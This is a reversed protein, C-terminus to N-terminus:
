KLFAGLKLLRPDLQIVRIVQPNKLHPIGSDGHNYTVTMWPKSWKPYRWKTFDGYICIYIYMHIYIYIYIHIYIYVYVYIYVYIYIYIYIYVHIHVYIYIYMYICTYIYIYLAIIYCITPYMSLFYICFQVAYMMEVHMSRIVWTPPRCQRELHCMRRIEQKPISWRPTDSFLTWYVGFM